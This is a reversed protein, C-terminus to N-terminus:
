NTKAQETFILYGLLYLSEGLLRFSQPDQGNQLLERLAYLGAISAIVYALYSGWFRRQALAFALTGLLCCLALLIVKPGFGPTLLVAEAAQVMRFGLIVLLALLPYPLYLVDLNLGCAVCSASEDPSTKGCKPCHRM